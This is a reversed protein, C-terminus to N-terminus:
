ATVFDFRDPRVRTLHGDRCRVAFPLHPPAVSLAELASDLVRWIGGAEERGGVELLTLKGGM